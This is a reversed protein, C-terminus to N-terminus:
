PNPKKRVTSDGVEEETDVDEYIPTKKEGGCSLLTVVFLFGLVSKLISM